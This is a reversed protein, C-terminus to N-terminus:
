YEDKKDEKKIKFRYILVAAFLEGTCMAFIGATLQSAEMGGTLWLRAEEAITYLVAFTLVFIIYADLGNKRGRM